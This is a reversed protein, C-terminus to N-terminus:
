SGNSLQEDATVGLISFLNQLIQPLVDLGHALVTISLEDEKGGEVTDLSNSRCISLDSSIMLSVLSM